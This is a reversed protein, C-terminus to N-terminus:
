QEPSAPGGEANLKEVIESLKKEEPGQLWREYGLDYGNGRGGGGYAAPIDADDMIERLQQLTAKPNSLVHIKKATRPDLLPKVMKWCTAFFSPTNVVYASAMREPYYRELMDMMAQGLHLAEKDALDMLGLGKLDYIRVFSGGPPGEPILDRIVWEVFFVFQYLMDDVSINGKRLAILAAKFRGMGEVIVPRRVGGAAPDPKTWGVVAHLYAAKIAKFHPIPSSLVDDVSNERRWEATIRLRRLAEDRKGGCAAIYRAFLAPTVAPSIAHLEALTAAELAEASPVVVTTVIHEEVVSVTTTTRTLVRRLSVAGVDVLARSVAAASTPRAPAGQRHTLSRTLTRALPAAPAPAPPAEPESVEEEEEEPGEVIEAHLLRVTFITSPGSPAATAATATAAPAPPAPSPGSTLMSWLLVGAAFSLACQLRELHTLTLRFGWSAALAYAMHRNMALALMAFIIGLATASAAIAVWGRGAPAPPAPSAFRAGALGGGGGAAPVGKASVSLTVSISLHRGPGSDDFGISAMSARSAAPTLHGAPREAVVTLPRGAGAAAAALEAVPINAHCPGLPTSLDIHLADSTGGAAAPPLTVTAGWAPARAVVASGFSVTAVALSTEVDLPLGKDLWLYAELLRNLACRLAACLERAASESEARLRLAGTAADEEGASSVLRSISSLVPFHWHASLFPHSGRGGPSDLQSSADADSISGGGVSGSDERIPSGPAAAANASRRPALSGLFSSSRHTVTDSADLAATNARGPRRAAESGVLQHEITVVAGDVTASHIFVLPLAVVVSGSASAPQTPSSPGENDDDDHLVTLRDCTLVVLHDPDTNESTKDRKFLSKLKSTSKGDPRIPSDLAVKCVTLSRMQHDLISM